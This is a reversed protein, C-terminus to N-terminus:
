SRYLFTNSRLLINFFGTGDMCIIYNLSTFERSQRPVGFPKVKADTPTTKFRHISSSLGYSRLLQKCSLNSQLQLRVGGRLPERSQSGKSPNVWYVVPKAPPLKIQPWLSDLINLKNSIPLDYFNLMSNEIM